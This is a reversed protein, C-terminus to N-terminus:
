FILHRRILLFIEKYELPMGYVFKQDELLAVHHMQVIMTIFDKKKKYSIGIPM